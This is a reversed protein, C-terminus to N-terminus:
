LLGGGPAAGTFTARTAITWAEYNDVPGATLQRGDSFRMQLVGTDDVQDSAVTSGIVDLLPCMQRPVSPDLEVVEGDPAQIQFPQELTLQSDDSLGLIVQSGIILHEVRAGVLGLSKQPM